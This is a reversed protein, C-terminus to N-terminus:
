EPEIELLERRIKYSWYGQAVVSLLNELTQRREELNGNTKESLIKQIYSVSRQGAPHPANFVHVMIDSPDAAFTKLDPRRANNTYSAFRNLIIIDEELVDTLTISSHTTILVHSQRGELTKDLLSVIKRKWFDNFHVEPEDLLILAETEGLLTFLCMRALFSREGDSLWDFLLLPPDDQEENEPHNSSSRQLFINVERLVSQGDDSFRGLRALIKFLQLGSSFEEIITQATSNGSATLDFVLLYDSGLRLTRTALNVLRKVEERDAQSTTGQTLRFKLSFGTVQSISIGQLVEELRRNESTQAIDALLGCLTVLSLQDAEIFLFQSEEEPTYNEITDFRLPNRPIERIARELLSLEQIAESYGGNVPQIDDLKKWATESGTTFAVVIEPLVSRSLQVEVNNEWVKLEGLPLVEETDFDEFETEEPFNSFKIQRKTDTEGLEYELEFCYEIPANRELKRMLDFLVRLVTSKGTGNVGVLFDLSYCSPNTLLNETQPSFYIELNRLVQYSELYLRQLKM